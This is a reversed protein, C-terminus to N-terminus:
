PSAIQVRPAVVRWVIPTLINVQGFVVSPRKAAPVEYGQSWVVHCYNPDSYYVGGADRETGNPDNLGAGPGTYCYSIGGSDPLLISVLKAGDPHPFSSTCVNLTAHNILPTGAANGASLSIELLCSGSLEM